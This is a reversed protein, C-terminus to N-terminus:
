TRSTYHVPDFVYRDDHEVEYMELLEKYEELFNIQRHHEEQNIIYNVVNPLAAQTYSFAGFGSQWAFKNKTFGKKNIWESSEGKVFKMLDSMSQYPKMGVLLHIHDPMGNIRIMKHRHNQVIGTIYKYLEDKWEDQIVAARFKVVFVFQIYVQTYTNAMFIYKTDPSM